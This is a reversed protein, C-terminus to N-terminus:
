QTLDLNEPNGAKNRDRKAAAAQRHQRALDDDGLREYATALTENIPPYDPLAALAAELDRVAEDWRGLLALIQGRTERYPLVRPAEAIAQNALQLAREMQPPETRTLYWALNNLIEPKDPDLRYAQELHNLAVPLRGQAYATSGLVLHVTAPAQKGRVLELLLQSAAGDLVGEEAAMVAVRTVLENNTPLYKAAESLLELRRGRQDRDERSLTDYWALYHRGLALEFTEDGTEELASELLVTSEEFREQFLLAEALGLRASETEEPGSGSQLQEQYHTEALDAQRSAAEPNGKLVLMRALMLRLDPRADAVRELAEAAREPDGTLVTLLAIRLKDEESSQVAGESGRLHRLLAELVEPSDTYQGQELLYDALWAHAEPYGRDGDAALDEMLGVAAAEDGQLLKTKAALFRDPASTAGLQQLRATAVSALEVDGNRIAATAAERYRTLILSPAVALGNLWCGVVAVVFVTLPAARWRSVAPKWSDRDYLVSLLAVWAITCLAVLLWLLGRDGLPLPRGDSASSWLCVGATLGVGCLWVLPWIGAMMWSISSFRNWPAWIAAVAAILTGAAFAIEMRDFAIVPRCREPLCIADSERDLTHIVGLGDLIQGVPQRIVALGDFDAALRPGSHALFLWYAGLSVSGALVTAIARQLVTTERHRSYHKM